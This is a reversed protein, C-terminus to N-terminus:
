IKSGNILDRRKKSRVKPDLSKKMDDLFRRELLIGMKKERREFYNTAILTLAFLSVSVGAFAFFVTFIKSIDTTPTLDGYGITTMTVGTFYFSDVYSWGELNHYAITGIALIVALTSIVIEIKRTTKM